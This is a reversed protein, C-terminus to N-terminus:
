RKVRDARTKLTAADDDSLQVLVSHPSPVISRSPTQTGPSLSGSLALQPSPVTSPGSPLHSASYGGVTQWSPVVSGSSVSSGPSIVQTPVLMPPQSTSSGQGLGVGFEPLIEYQPRM